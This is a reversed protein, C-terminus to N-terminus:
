LMSLISALIISCAALLAAGCLATIAINAIKAKEDRLMEFEKLAEIWTKTIVLKCNEDTDYYYENMLIEPPTMAGLSKPILGKVCIFITVALFVCVAIKIILCSYCLYSYSPNPIFAQNPLNISFVISTASFGLVSSLKTNLVNISDNALKIRYETYSYILSINTHEVTKETEIPNDM